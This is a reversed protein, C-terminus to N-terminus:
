APPVDTGAGAGLRAEPTPARLYLPQLLLSTEWVAPPTRSLRCAAPGALPSAAVWRVGPLAGPPGQAGFGIATRAGLSALAAAPLRAPPRAGAGLLQAFWEGRLADVLGLAPLAEPPVQLALAEFTTIATAPIGLARHLAWASALALRLGTFSGPGRVAVVAGLDGPVLGASAVARAALAVPAPASAGAAWATAEALLVGDRAVAASPLPSGADVVLLPVSLLCPDPVAHM